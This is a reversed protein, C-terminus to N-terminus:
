SMSPEEIGDAMIQTGNDKKAGGISLFYISGTRLTISLSKSTSSGVDHRVPMSSSLVCFAMHISCSFRLRGGHVAKDIFDCAM